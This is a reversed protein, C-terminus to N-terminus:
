NVPSAGSEDYAGGPTVDDPFNILTNIVIMVARLNRRRIARLTFRRTFMRYAPTSMGAGVKALRREMFQRLNPSSVSTLPATLCSAQRM